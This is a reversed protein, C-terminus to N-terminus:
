VQSKSLPISATGSGDDIPTRMVYYTVGGIAITSNQALASVDSYKASIELDVNEVGLTEAFSATKIVNITAGGSLTAVVAFESTDFFTPLDTLLDDALTM